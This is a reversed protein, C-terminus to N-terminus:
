ASWSPARPTGANGVTPRDVYGHLLKAIERPLRDDDLWEGDRMLSARLIGIVASSAVFAQLPDLGAGNPAAVLGEVERIPEQLVDWRGIKTCFEILERRVKHQAGVSALLARAAAEAVDGGSRRASNIAAKVQDASAALERLAMAILLADKNPFYQYLSGVSIGCEDAIRNTTIAVIGDREIVRAAAEFM